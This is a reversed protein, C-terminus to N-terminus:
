QIITTTYCTTDGFVAKFYHSISLNTISGSEGDLFGYINTYQPVGSIVADVGYLKGHTSNINKTSWNVTVIARYPYIIEDKQTATITCSPTINEVVSVIPVGVGGTSVIPQPVYVYIPQPPSPPTETPSVIQEQLAQNALDIAQDILPSKATAPNQLLSLALQLLVVIQSLNM